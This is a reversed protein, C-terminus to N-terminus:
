VLGYANRYFKFEEYIKIENISCTLNLFYYTQLLNGRRTLFVKLLENEMYFSRLM